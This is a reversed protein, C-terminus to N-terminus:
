RVIVFHRRTEFGEPTTVRFVYIGAAVERGHGNRLDWTASGSVTDEHELERVLDGAVTYIQITAKVPLHQFEIHHTGPPDWPETGRYPNPVVIVRELDASPPVTLVVPSTMLNLALNNLNCCTTPDLSNTCHQLDPVFLNEFGGQVFKPDAAYVIAYYAAYGDPPPPPPLLVFTSDPKRCTGDPRFERCVFIRVLNGSSDPDVFSVTKQNDDFHWLLTDKYVFRRLLEMRCTDPETFVRYINYGGFGGHATDAALRQELALDRDWVVTVRRSVTSDQGHSGILGPFARFQIRPFTDPKAVVTCANGPNPCPQSRGPVVALALGLGSLALCLVLRLARSSESPDVKRKDPFVALLRTHRM